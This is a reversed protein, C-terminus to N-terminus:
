RKRDPLSANSPRRDPLKDRQQDQVRRVREVADKLVRDPVTELATRDKLFARLETALLQDRPDASRDFRDAAKEYKDKTTEWREKARTIFAPSVAKGTAIALAERAQRMDAETPQRSVGRRIKERMQALAM